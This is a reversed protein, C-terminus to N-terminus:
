KCSSLLLLQLGPLYQTIQFWQDWSIQKELNGTKENKVYENKIYQFLLILYIDTMDTMADLTVTTNSPSEATNSRPNRPVQPERRVKATGSKQKKTDFMRKIFEFMFGDESEMVYFPEATLFKRAPGVSRTLKSTTASPPIIQNQEVLIELGFIEFKATGLAAVWEKIQSSVSYDVLVNMNGETSSSFMGDFRDIKARYEDLFKQTEPCGNRKGGDEKSPKGCVDFDLSLIHKGNTQQGLRLGWLNWKYDHQKVLADYSLEQWGPMGKKDKMIPAKKENVNYLDYRNDVLQRISM